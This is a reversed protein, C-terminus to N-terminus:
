IHILDHTQTTAPVATAKPGSPATGRFKLVVLVAIVALVAVALVIGVIGGPSIASSKSVSRDTAYKNGLYARGNYAPAKPDYLPRTTPISSDAGFHLVPDWIYTIPDDSDRQTDNLRPRPFRIRVTLAVNGTCNPDSYGAFTYGPPFTQWHKTDDDSYFRSLRLTGSAGLRFDGEPYDTYNFGDTGDTWNNYRASMNQPLIIIDTMNVGGVQVRNGDTDNVYFSQEGDVGDVLGGWSPLVYGPYFVGKPLQMDPEITFEVEFSDGNVSYTYNHAEIAFKFSGRKMVHTERVCGCWGQSGPVYLCIAAVFRRGLNSTCQSQLNLTINNTSGYYWCSTVYNVL